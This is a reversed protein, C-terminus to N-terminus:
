EANQKDDEKEDRYGIEESVYVEWTTAPSCLVNMPFTEGRLLKLLGRSTKKTRKSNM